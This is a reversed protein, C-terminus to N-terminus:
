KANKIYEEFQDDFSKDSSEDYLNRSFFNQLAMENYTYYAKDSFLEIYKEETIKQEDLYRKLAEYYGKQSEDNKLSEFETKATKEITEWSLLIDNEKNLKLVKYEEELLKKVEEKTEPLASMNYWEEAEEKSLSENLFEKNTSNTIKNYLDRNQIKKDTIKLNNETKCGVCFVIMLMVTAALLIKKM